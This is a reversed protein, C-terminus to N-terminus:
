REEEKLREEELSIEKMLKEAVKLTRERQESEPYFYLIEELDNYLNNLSGVFKMSINDPLLATQIRSQFEETEYIGEKYQECLAVLNLLDSM